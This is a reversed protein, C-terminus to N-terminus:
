VTEKEEVGQHRRMRSVQPPWVCKMGKLLVCHFSHQRNLHELTAPEGNRGEIALKGKWGSRSFPALRTTIRLKGAGSLLMM